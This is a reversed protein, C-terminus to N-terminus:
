VLVLSLSFRANVFTANVFRIRLFRANLFRAKFYRENLLRANLLRADLYIYRVRPRLSFKSKTKNLKSCDKQRKRM